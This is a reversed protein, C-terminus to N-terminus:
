STDPRWLTRSCTEEIPVAERTACATLTIEAVPTWPVSLCVLLVLGHPLVTSWTTFVIMFVSRLLCRGSSVPRVLLPPMRKTMMVELWLRVLLKPIRGRCLMRCPTLVSPVPFM